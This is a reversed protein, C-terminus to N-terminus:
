HDITVKHRNEVVESTSKYPQPTNYLQRSSSFATSSNFRTDQHANVGCFSHIHLKTIASSSDKVHLLPTIGHLVHTPQKEM